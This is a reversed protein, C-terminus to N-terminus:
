HVAVVQLPVLINHLLIHEDARPELVNLILDLHVALQKLVVRRPHSIQQCVWCFHVGILVNHNAVLVKTVEGSDRLLLLLKMNILQYSLNQALDVGGVQQVPRVDKLLFKFQKGM